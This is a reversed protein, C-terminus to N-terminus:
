EKECTKHTKVPWDYYMAVAGILSQMPLRSVFVDDFIKSTIPLRYRKGNPVILEIKGNICNIDLKCIDIDQMHNNSEPVEPWCYHEAIRNLLIANIEPIDEKSIEVTFPMLFERGLAWVSDYTGPVTQEKIFDQM